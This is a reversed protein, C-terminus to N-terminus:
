QLMPHHVQNGSVSWTLNEKQTDNDIVYNDLILSTDGGVPIYLLEPLDYILPRGNDFVLVRVTDKASEGTHDSVTFIVNDIDHMKAPVVFDAVHDTGINVSLRSGAAYWILESLLDDDDIVYDDLDVYRFTTVMDSSFIVTDPLHVIFVPPKPGITVNIIDFTASSLDIDYATFILTETGVFGPKGSITLRTTNIDMFVTVNLEGTWTYGITEIPSDVDYTYEKLVISSDSQGPLLHLDPLGSIVPPDNVPLITVNVQLSDTAGHPDTTILVVEGSGFYDKAGRISLMRTVSDDIAVIINENLSYGRWSLTTSDDDLDHALTDIMLNYAEDENFVIPDHINDKFEPFYTVYVQMTESDSQGYPDSVNFVFDRFGIFGELARFTVEHTAPNITVFVSDQTGSVSWDLNASDVPPNYLFDDLDFYNALTQGPKMLVDPIGQVNVSLVGVSVSGFVDFRRSTLDLFHMRTDRHNGRDYDITIRSGGTVGIAKLAFRAIRGTEKITRGQSMQSHISMQYSPIANPEEVANGTHNSFASFGGTVIFPLIAPNQDQDIIEFFNENFTIFTSVGTILTGGIDFWVDVFFTEGIRVDFSTIGSPISNNPGDNSKNLFIKRQAYSNLPLLLILIAIVGIATPKIYSRLSDM